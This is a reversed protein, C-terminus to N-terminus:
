RAALSVALFVLAGIFALGGVIVSVLTFIGVYKWFSRQAHLANELDAQDKSAILGSIQRAYRHLFLVAPFQLLASTLYILSAAIRPVLSSSGMSEMPVVLIGISALVILGLGMFGLVSLLRVWPKTKALITVVEAAVEGGRAQVAAPPRLAM